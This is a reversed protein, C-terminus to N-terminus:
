KSSCYKAFARKAFSRALNRIQVEEETLQEELRFPDKFILVKEVKNQLENKKLM